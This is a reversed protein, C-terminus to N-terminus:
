LIMNSVVSYLWVCLISIDLAKSGVWNSTLVKAAEKIVVTRNISLCIKWM